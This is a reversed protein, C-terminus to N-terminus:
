SFRGVLGDVSECAFQPKAWSCDPEANVAQGTGALKARVGIRRFLPTNPGQVGGLAAVRTELRLLLVYPFADLDEADALVAILRLSRLQDIVLCFQSDEAVLPGIVGVLVPAM